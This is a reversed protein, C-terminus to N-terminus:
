TTQTKTEVAKTQQLNKFYGALSTFNPEILLPFALRSKLNVEKTSATQWWWTTGLIKKIDKPDVKNDAICRFWDTFYLGLKKQFKGQMLPEVKGILQGAADRVDQEHFTVVVHCKLTGLTDVVKRSYEIKKDWFDYADVEMTKTYVKELDQQLDFNDQLTTWSDLILTQDKELKRGEGTIWELVADRIPYEIKAFSPKFWTKLWDTDKFPLRHVDTRHTHATLNNDIDIVIPNPFTLASYTKGTGSAGQLALRIQYTDLSSMKQANTPIHM